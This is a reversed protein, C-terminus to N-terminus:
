GAAPKEFGPGGSAPEELGPEDAATKDAAPACTAPGPAPAGPAAAKGGVPAASPSRVLDWAALGAGVLGAKNGLEAATVRVQDKGPAMANKLLHKRAYHLLLEGLEGVGGGVVIMEPNFTNTLNALGIGLWEALQQVAEIAGRHGERALRAVAGGSLMGQERLHLLVDGPDREPDRVRAGAYRALAPGSAYMELCGKMGCRCPLGGMQVVTHGLEGAAGGVGRYLRGDLLLAGGVGTGLTLMIVHRLGQAVGAVSEGLLAANADNELIVPIGFTERLPAALSVERLPLNPSTVVVGRDSDVTGACALGVARPAYDAFQAMARRLTTELGTLFSETDETRSPDVIPPALQTGFPDVPGVAIKTGGVDAGLVSPM